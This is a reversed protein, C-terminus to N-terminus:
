LNINRSFVFCFVYLFVFVIISTEMPHGYTEGALVGFFYIVHKCKNLFFYPVFIFLFMIMHKSFSAKYRM